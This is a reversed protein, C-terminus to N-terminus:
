WLKLRALLAAARATQRATPHPRGFFVMASVETGRVLAVQQYVGIRAPLGEFPAAVDRTEVKPPWARRPVWGPAPHEVAVTVQLAIGGPPLAAVTRHPLCEACDRWRITAVWTTAQVCRSAAVGPCAHVVTHGSHWGPQPPLAAPVLM